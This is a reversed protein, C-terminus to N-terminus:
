FRDILVRIIQVSCLTDSVWDEVMRGRVTVCIVVVLLVLREAGDDSPSLVDLTMVMMVM